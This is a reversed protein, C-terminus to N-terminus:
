SGSIVSGNWYLILYINCPFEGVLISGLQCCTPCNRGTKELQSHRKFMHVLVVVTLIDCDFIYTSYWRCGIGLHPIGNNSCQRIFYLFCVCCLIHFALLCFYSSNKKWSFSIRLCCNWFFFWGVKDTLQWCGTWTEQYKKDIKMNQYV